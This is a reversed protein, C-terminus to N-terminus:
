NYWEAKKNFTSGAFQFWMSSSYRNGAVITHVEHLYNENGPFFILSNPKPKIYINLDPFSIEGGVYDDNIYYISAIHNSEASDTDIHPYLALGKTFKILILDKKIFENIKVDYLDTATKHVFAFVKELMAVINAPLDDRGVTYSDWPELTWSERNRAYELIASHEEESLVNEIYKINEVSDGIKEVNKLYIEDKESPNTIM